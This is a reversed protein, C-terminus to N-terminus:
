ILGEISYDIYVKDGEYSFVSALAKFDPREGANRLAKILENRLLTVLTRASDESDMDLFGHLSDDEDVLLLIMDMRAIVTDPIALPMGEPLAEPSLSYVAVAAEDMQMAIEEPILAIRSSCVDEYLRQYDDSFLLVGPLAVGAELNESAYYRVGNEEVKDFGPANYLLTSNIYAYSYDGEAVGSTAFGDGDPVMELSLREARAALAGPIGDAPILGSLSTKGAKEMDLTIVISGPRGLAAYSRELPSRLVCSASLVLVLVAILLKKM